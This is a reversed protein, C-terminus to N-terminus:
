KKKSGKSQKLGKRIVKVEARNNQQLVEKGQTKEIRREGIQRINKRNRNTGGIPRTGGGKTIRPEEGQRHERHVLTRTETDSGQEKTGRDRYPLTLQLQEDYLGAISGTCVYSNKPRNRGATRPAAKVREPQRTARNRSTPGEEAEKGTEFRVM